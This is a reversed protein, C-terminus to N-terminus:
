EGDGPPTDEDPVDTPTIPTLGLMRAASAVDGTAEVMLKAGEFDEGRIREVEEIADEIPLGATQLMRVATATSIAKVPLLEKVADIAAPLDAPLASGLEIVARPLDGTLADHVVALRMAFRLILPYKEDRVTRMERLLNKAPAFGLELAYGSPVDNPAVRGLLSQALRSNIAIRDLLGTVHGTLAVLNKSTDMFSAKADEPMGIVGGVPTQEPAPAGQLVMSPNAAQAAAALDTDNASLDDLLHAVKLLISRGFTRTTSPDNPVHVVPIFDIGLDQWGDTEGETPTSIFKTGARRSLDPSYVDVDSLLDATDYDVVRYKCVWSATGGYKPTWPDTPFLQWTHRRIWTRGTEDRHEWAIHVAPPYEDDSWGDVRAKNETDPFYFGPDFVRLRPRGKAADWGLTYVVDGDGIAHEEGELLKQTLREAAAWETLWAAAAGDPDDPATVTQTDGLLLARATDVLLAADGYERYKEAGQMWVSDPLHYRRTNTRYSGLVQYATLRRRDHQDLWTRGPVAENGRLEPIHALPAYTDNLYPQM